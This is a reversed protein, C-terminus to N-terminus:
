YYEDAQCNDGCVCKPTCKQGAKACPCRFRCFPTKRCQCAGARGMTPTALGSGPAVAYEDEAAAAAARRKKVQQVLDIAAPSMLDLQSFTNFIRQDLSRAISDFEAVLDFLKAPLAAKQMLNFALVIRKFDGM